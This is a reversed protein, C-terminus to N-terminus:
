PDAAAIDCTKDAIWPQLLQVATTQKVAVTTNITISTYLKITISITISTCSTAPKGKRENNPNADM